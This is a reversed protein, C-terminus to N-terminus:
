TTWEGREVLLDKLVDPRDTILGDVGMDLLRVMETRRNVTWVHVQLGADHAVKVLREDVVRVGRMHTPLQLAAAEGGAQRGVRSALVWLRALTPGTSTAVRRNTLHRFEALRADSFSGVVLRDHVDLDDILAALPGALGDSKMDVVVSTDPFTTLLWELTPVKIGLERYTFGDPTGHRFGADLAQLQELSLDEVRGTSNTTRDVTPDHFCVLAGDATLHLDTEFHRYGLEYAGHFSTDTNEPWLVRSGRHAIPVPSRWRDPDLTMGERYVCLATM